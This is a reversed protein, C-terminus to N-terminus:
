LHIPFDHLYIFHPFLEDEEKQKNRCCTRGECLSGGHGIILHHTQYHSLM